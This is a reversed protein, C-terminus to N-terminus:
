VERNKQKDAPIWRKVIEDLKHLEIPKALYDNMGQAIMMERTGAMANATLAVIPLSQFYEGALARIALATEIGDMGPMMHDLFVLDYANKQVLEIAEYGSRCKDIQMSYVDLLGEGVLLNIEIDDVLLVKADPASFQIDPIPYPNEQTLPFVPSSLMNAITLAHIPQSICRYGTREQEDAYNNVLVIREGPLTHILRSFDEESLYDGVLVLDIEESGALRIMEDTRDCIFFSIELSTLTDAIAEAYIKRPEYVLLRKKNAENVAAFPVSSGMQQQIAFCFTSGQGYVSQVTIDGGMLNALNRAIALGLGTGEVNRHAKKNVQTFAGFIQGLAEAKIGIGTDAVTFCLNAISGDLSGEVRLSIHGQDTYKAANSLLNMLVQRMHLEDGLLQGPLNSDVYVTFLLSKDKVRMRTINTTDFILSALSYPAEAIEMKGTEIKSIDLIDGITALLNAGAQRIGQVKDLSSQPLDAGLLIDSLGLVANLPTRIEHSMNALFTSKAKNAQKAEEMALILETMDHFLMIAGDVANGGVMPSLAIAYHRYLGTNGIDMHIGITQSQANQISKLFAAQFESMADKDAYPHLLSFWDQEQVFGLNIAGTMQLFNRTCNVLKGNSDLLLIIDPSNELLLTMYKEHRTKEASLVSLLMDKSANHAQIRLLSEQTTKYRRMLLRHEKELVHLRTEADLMQDNELGHGTLPTKENM